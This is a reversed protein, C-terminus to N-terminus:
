NLLGSFWDIKNAVHLIQSMKKDNLVWSYIKLAIVIKKLQAAARLISMFSIISVQLNEM